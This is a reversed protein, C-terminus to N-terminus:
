AGRRWSLGAAAHVAAELTGAAPVLQPTSPLLIVGEEHKAIDAGVRITVRNM